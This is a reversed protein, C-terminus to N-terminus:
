LHQLPKGKIDKFYFIGENKEDWGFKTINILIQECKKILEPKNYRTALDILFWM